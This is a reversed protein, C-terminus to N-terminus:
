TFVRLAFPISGLLWGVSVGWAVGRWRRKRWPLFTFAGMLFIGSLFAAYFTWESWLYGVLAAAMAAVAIALWVEMQDVRQWISAGSM